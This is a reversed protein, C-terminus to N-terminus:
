RLSVRRKGDHERSITESYSPPLEELSQQEGSNNSNGSFDEVSSPPSLPSMHRTTYENTGHTVDSNFEPPESPLLAQERLRLVDKEEEATALTGSPPPSPISPISIRDPLLNNFSHASSSGDRSSRSVELATSTAGTDRNTLDNEGTQVKRNSASDTLTNNSHVDSNVRSDLDFSSVSEQPTDAIRISSNVLRFRQRHKKSSGSVPLRETGVVVESTMTLVNKMQKLKDVNYITDESNLHIVEEDVLQKRKQLGPIRASSSLNILVEIYYQFSVLNTVITPFCDLPVKLSTCIEYSSKSDPDVILPVITQALDKRFSQLEYEEGMDLTCVRLFTIFIGNVNSIRKYHQINLKVPISEGKLYGLSPIEMKVKIKNSNRVVSSDRQAEVSDSSNLSSTSSPIRHMIGRSNKFTFTKPRSEPLLTVNIPKVINLLMESTAFKADNSDGDCLDTRLCYKIEGKEFSISTHINKRPLKVIFPFRHEGKTLALENNARDGYLLIERNFLVEKKGSRLPTNPHVKIMGILALRISVDTVNRGLVLIVQGAVEEGSHYTKHPEDLMIYFSKMTAKVKSSVFPSRFRSGRLPM